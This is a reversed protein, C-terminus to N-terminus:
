FSKQAAKSLEFGRRDRNECRLRKTTVECSFGSVSWRQGYSLTKYGQNQITDGHCSRVSKGREALYFRNGWDLQCDKPKPPLKATNQKLECELGATNTRTDRTAICYINGSPTKFSGLDEWGQAFSLSSVILFGATLGSYTKNM